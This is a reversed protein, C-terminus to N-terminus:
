AAGKVQPSCTHIDGPQTQKGCIPCRGPPTPLPMWHTVVPNSGDDCTGNNEIPYCWGHVDHASGTYQGTAAIACCNLAILVETNREPLRNGVPIWWTPQLQATIATDIDDLAARCKDFASKNWEDEDMGMNTLMANIASRCRELLTTSGAPALGHCGDDCGVGFFAGMCCFRKSVRRLRDMNNM